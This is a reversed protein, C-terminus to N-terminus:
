KVKDKIGTHWFIGTQALGKPLKDDSKLDTTGVGEVYVSKQTTEQTSIADYGRAVNTYDNEYSDDKKNSNEQYATMNKERAETNNRNNATGDFFINLTLELSNSKKDEPHSPEYDNYFVGEQEGLWNNHKAAVLDVNGNTAHIDIKGTATKKLTGGIIRTISM